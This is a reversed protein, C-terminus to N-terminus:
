AAGLRRREDLFQKRRAYYKRTIRGKVGAAETSFLPFPKQFGDHGRFMGQFLHEQVNKTMGMGTDSVSLCIWDGTGMDAVPSPEEPQIELRSLTFRLDGGEPMADRANLALNTLAQQIRGPDAEVTYQGAIADQMNLTLCIHEPITHRLVKVVEETLASLNLPCPNIMAQSSFDLIQQVLDTAQYSENIITELYQRVDPPLNHNRESLQAYLIITSLLNRFDHAIGSALQGVAALREQQRLHQEMRKRETIDRVICIAGEDL